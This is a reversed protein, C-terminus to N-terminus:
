VGDLVVRCGMRHLVKAIDTATETVSEEATDPLCAHMCEHIVTDLLDQPAQNLAILIRKQPADSPDISGCSGDQLYEIVELRWRKGRLEVRM